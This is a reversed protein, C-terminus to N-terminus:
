EYQYVKLCEYCVLHTLLPFLSCQRRNINEGSHTMRHCLKRWEERKELLSEGRIQTRQKGVRNHMCDTVQDRWSTRGDDIM